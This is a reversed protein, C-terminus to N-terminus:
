THCNQEEAWHLHQGQKCVSICNSCKLGVSTFDENGSTLCSWVTYLLFIYCLVDTWVWKDKENLVYTWSIQHVFSKAKHTVVSAWRSRRFGALGSRSAEDILPTMIKETMDSLVTFTPEVIFDIFGSPQFFVFLYMTRIGTTITSCYFSSCVYLWYEGIQSQPVM